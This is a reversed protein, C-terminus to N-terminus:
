EDGDATAAAGAGAVASPKRVALPIKKIYCDFTIQIWKYGTLLSKFQDSSVFKNVDTIAMMSRYLKKLQTEQAYNQDALEFFYERVAHLKTSKGVEVHKGGTFAKDQTLITLVEFWLDLTDKLQAHNPDKVLEKFGKPEKELSTSVSTTLHKAAAAYKKPDDNIDALTKAINSLLLEKLIEKFHEYSKIYASPGNNNNNSKPAASVIDSETSLKIKKVTKPEEEDDNDDDDVVAPFRKAQQELFNNMNDTFNKSLVSLNKMFAEQYRLSTLLSENFGDLLARQANIFDDTDNNHKVKKVVTNINSPEPRTNVTKPAATAVPKKVNSSMQQQQTVNKIEKDAVKPKPIDENEKEKENELNFKGYPNYSTILTTDLSLADELAKQTTEKYKPAVSPEDSTNSEINALSLVSNTVNKLFLTDVTNQFILKSKWLEKEIAAKNKKDAQRNIESASGRKLHVLNSDEFDSLVAPPIPSLSLLYQEAINCSDYAKTSPAPKGAVKLYNLRLKRQEDEKASNFKFQFFQIEPPITEYEIEARKASKKAQEIKELDVKAKESKEKQLAIKLKEVREQEVKFREIRIREAEEKELREKEKEAKAKEAAIAKAKEAKAKELAAAKEKDAKTKEIAAAAAKEKELTAKIKEDALAKAIQERQLREAESTEMAKKVDVASPTQKPKQYDKFLDDEEEDTTTTTVQAVATPTKLKVPQQSATAATTNNKPAPKGFSFM